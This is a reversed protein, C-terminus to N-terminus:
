LKIIWSTDETIKNPEGLLENVAEVVGQWAPHYDHGGIFGGKKILPLYNQIDKKVQEYTHLGDIYVFDVKKNVLLDHEIVDDSAAKILSVNEYKIMREQFVKLVDEMPAHQCALDSKDYGDIYPDITVVFKFNECFIQTSEGAYSGIEIMQMKNTDSISNIYSILDRLGREYQPPRMQYLESMYGM